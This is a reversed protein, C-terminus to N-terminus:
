LTPSRRRTFSYSWRSAWISRVPKHLLGTVSYYFDGKVVVACCIQVKQNTDKGVAFQWRTWAEADQELVSWCLPNSFLWSFSQPNRVVPGGQCWYCLRKTLFGFYEKLKVIFKFDLYIKKKMYIYVSRYMYTYILKIFVCICVYKIYTCHKHTPMCTQRYVCVCLLFIHAHKHKYEYICICLHIHIYLVCTCVCVCVCVCNVTLGFLLLTNQFNVQSM